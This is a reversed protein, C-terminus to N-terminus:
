SKVRAKFIFGKFEANITALAPFPLSAHESLMEYDEHLQSALRAASLSWVPYSARYIARPVHQIHLTDSGTANVITRDLVIYKPRQSIVESLVAAPRPLYQLVSSLLVVDTSRGQAAEDISRCFRLEPTQMERQGAAVFSEQEVVTWNLPNVRETLFPRCERYSSGLAGGFDIVTVAGNNELATRLLTAVVPFSYEIRDFLVSDREYVAVGDRVKRSASLVGSLIADSQYGSSMAVAEAWGGSVREFWLGHGLERRLAALLVPPIWARLRSRVNM